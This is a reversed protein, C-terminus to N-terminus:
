QNTTPKCKGYQANLQEFNFNTHEVFEKYDEHLTLGESSGSSLAHQEPAAPHEEPHEDPAEDDRMTAEVADAEWPVMPEESAKSATGRLSPNRSAPRTAQFEALMKAKDFRRPAGERPSRRYPSAQSESMDTGGLRADASSARSEM